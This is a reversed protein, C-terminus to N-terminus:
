IKEKFSPEISFEKYEGNFPDIFSIYYSCLCLNNGNGYLSDGLVPHGISSMHVRIQHCRGTELSLEILTKDDYNKIVNYKTISEKGDDSIKRKIGETKSIAKNIIGSSTIIGEVFALYKRNINSLNKSFLNASYKDKCVLVLGETDKDLRNIFHITNNMNNNSYYYIIANYLSKFDNYGTPITKLGSPKNIIMYEKCEYIIDIEYEYSVDEKNIDDYIIDLIDGNHLIDYNKIEKPEVANIIEELKM